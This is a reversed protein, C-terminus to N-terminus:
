RDRVGRGHRELERLLADPLGHDRIGRRANGRPRRRGRPVRARQRRLYGEPTHGPENGIATVITVLSVGPFDRVVRDLIPLEKQCSPCWPAWVSLVTPAGEYDRWAVRGGALGPASFDPIAQGVALPERRAPGDVTVDGARSPGAGGEPGTVVVVAVILAAALALGGLARGLTRRRQQKRRAAARAEAAARQRQRKTPKTTTTSM